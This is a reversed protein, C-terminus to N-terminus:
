QLNSLLWEKIKNAKDLLSRTTAADCKQYIKMSYDPYRGELQFDNFVLLFDLQENSMELKTQKLIYVLNHVRPPHNTENDKVWIAKCIKELSLHAFFLSQIFHNTKYLDESSSWDLVGTEKWYKIYEEKTM